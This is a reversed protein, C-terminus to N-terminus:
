SANQLGTPVFEVNWRWLHNNKPTSDPLVFLIGSSTPLKLSHKRGKQLIEQSTLDRQALQKILQRVQPTTLRKVLLFRYSNLNLEAQSVTFNSM